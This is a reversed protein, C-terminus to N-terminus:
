RFARAIASVTGVTVRTGGNPSGAAGFVVTGVRVSAADAWELAKAGATDVDIAALDGDVDVGTVRGRVSRGDAFTVTVEDGRINHANTVVRGDAVVFGSGRQRQGIGVVSSGATAVVNDIGAQLDEFIGM